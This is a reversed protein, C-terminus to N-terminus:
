KLEEGCFPCFKISIIFDVGEQSLTGFRTTELIWIDYENDKNIVISNKLNHCYHYDM